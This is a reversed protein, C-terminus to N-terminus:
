TCFLSFYSQFSENQRFLLQSIPCNPCLDSLFHGEAVIQSAETPLSPGRLPQIGPRWHAQLDSKLDRDGIADSTPNLGRGRVAELIFFHDDKLNPLIM